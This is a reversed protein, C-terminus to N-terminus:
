RWYQFYGRPINNIYLNDVLSEVIELFILNSNHLLNFSSNFVLEEFWVGGGRPMARGYPLALRAPFIIINNRFNINFINYSKDFSFTM